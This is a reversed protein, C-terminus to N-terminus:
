WNKVKLLESLWHKLLHYKIIIEIQTKLDTNERGYHSILYKRLSFGLYM